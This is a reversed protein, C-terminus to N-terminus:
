FILRGLPQPLRCYQKASEKDASSHSLRNILQKLDSLCCTRLDPLNRLVSSLHHPLHLVKFTTFVQGLLHISCESIRQNLQHHEALISTSTLQQVAMWPVSNLTVADLLNGFREMAQVLQESAFGVPLEVVAGQETCNLLVYILLHVVHQLVRRGTLVKWVLLNGVEECSALWVEIVLVTGSVVGEVCGRSEEQGRDREVLVLVIVLLGYDRFRERLM